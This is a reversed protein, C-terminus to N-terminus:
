AADGQSVLWAALREAVDPTTWDGFEEPLRELGLSDAITRAQLLVLGQTIGRREAEDAWRDTSWWAPDDSMTDPSPPLPRGFDSRASGDSPSSASSTAEDGADGSGSAVPGQTPASM